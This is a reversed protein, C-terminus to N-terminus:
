QEAGCPARSVCRSCLLLSLLGPFGRPTLSFIFFPLTTHKVSFGFFPLLSEVVSVMKSWFDRCFVFVVLNQMFSPRTSGSSGPYLCGYSLWRLFWRCLVLTARLVFCYILVKDGRKLVLFLWVCRFCMSTRGPFLFFLFLSVIAATVRNGVERGCCGHHRPRSCQRSSRARRHVRNFRHPALRPAGPHLAAHAPSVDSWALARHLLHSPRERPAFTHVLHNNRTQVFLSCNDHSDPVVFHGIFLAPCVPHRCIRLPLYCSTCWAIAANSILVSYERIMVIITITASRKM